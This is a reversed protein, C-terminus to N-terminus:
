VGFPLAFRMILHACAKPDRELEKHTHRKEKQLSSCGKRDAVRTHSTMMRHTWSLATSKTIFSGLGMSAGAFAMM